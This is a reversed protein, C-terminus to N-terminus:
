SCGSTAGCTDCKLCTGNVVLTFNGCDGCPDGTYGKARSLTREDILMSVTDDGQDIELVIPQTGPLQVVVNESHLLREVEVAKRLIAGIMSTPRDTTTDVGMSASMSEVPEGRQLLHSLLIMADNAMACVQTDARFGACFAEVIRPPRDSSMGFTVILKTDKHGPPAYAVECTLGARRDPPRIRDAM